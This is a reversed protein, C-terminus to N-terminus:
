CCGWVYCATYKMTFYAAGAVVCAEWFAVAWPGCAAFMAVELMFIDWFITACNIYQRRVLQLGRQSDLKVAMDEFSAAVRRLTASAGDKVLADFAASRAAPDDRVVGLQSVDVDIGNAKLQAALAQLDPRHALVAGRGLSRLGKAIAADLGITAGHASLVRLASALQRLPEGGNAAANPRTAATTAAKAQRLVEQLVPDQTRKAPIQGAAAGELFPLAIAASPIAVAATHLFMRRPTSTM